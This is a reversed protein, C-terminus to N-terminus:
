KSKNGTEFGQKYRNTWGRNGAGKAMVFGHPLHQGTFYRMIQGTCLSGLVQTVHLVDCHWTHLMSLKHIHEQPLTAAKVSDGGKCGMSIPRRCIMLFNQFCINTICTLHGVHTVSQELLTKIVFLNSYNQFVSYSGIKFSNGHILTFSKFSM